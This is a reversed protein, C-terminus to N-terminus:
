QRAREDRLRRLVHLVLRPLLAPENRCFHELNEIAQHQANPAETGFLLSAELSARAAEGLAGRTREQVLHLLDGDSRINSLFDAEKALAEVLEKPLCPALSRSPTWYETDPHRIRWTLHDAASWEIGTQEIVKAFSHSAIGVNCYFTPNTRTSSLSKQLWISQTLADTRRQARSGRVQFGLNRLLSAFELRIPDASM